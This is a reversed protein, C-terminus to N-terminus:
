GLILLERHAQDEICKFNYQPEIGQRYLLLSTVIIWAGILPIGWISWFVHLLIAPVIGMDLINCPDRHFEGFDCGKELGDRCHKIIGANIDEVELVPEVAGFPIGFIRTSVEIDHYIPAEFSRAVDKFNLEGNLSEQGDILTTASSQFREELPATTVVRVNQPYSLQM